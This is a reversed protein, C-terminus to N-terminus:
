VDVKCFYTSYGSEGQIYVKTEQPTTTNHEGGSTTRRFMRGEVSKPVKGFLGHAGQGKVMAAQLAVCELASGDVYARYLKALEVVFSKGVKGYSIPFPKEENICMIILMM